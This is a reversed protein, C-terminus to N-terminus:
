WPLTRALEAEAAKVAARTREEAAKAGEFDEQREDAVRQDVTQLRALQMDRLYEKERFRRIAATQSVETQRVAIAAEAATVAAEASTKRAQAQQVAAKSREVEAAALEVAQQREPDYIEALVQGKEVTDGIDVVQARLYGSAKAYLDAYQFAHLTGPQTTTRVLGGQHPTVYKVWLAARNQSSGQGSSGQDQSSDQQQSSSYWWYGGAAVAAVVLIVLTISTWSWGSDAAEPADRDDPQDVDRESDM